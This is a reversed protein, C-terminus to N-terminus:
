VARLVDVIPLRAARVSPLIGGLLVVSLAWALGVGVLGPSM